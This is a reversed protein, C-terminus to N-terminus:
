RPKSLDVIPSSTDAPGTYRLFEGRLMPAFVSGLWNPGDVSVVADQDRGTQVNRVDLVSPGNYSPDIAHDHLKFVPVKARGARGTAAIWVQRVVLQTAATPHAWAEFVATGVGGDETDIMADNVTNVGGYADPLFTFIRETYPRMFGYFSTNIVANCGRLRWSDRGSNRVNTNTAWLIQRFGYYAADMGGISCDNLTVTYNAGMRWSGVAVNEYSEARVHDAEFDLVSGLVLCAGRGMLRLDRVRNPSGGGQGTKMWLASGASGNKDHADVTWSTKLDDLPLYGVTADAENRDFYRFLDNVTSRTGVARRQPDGPKGVVYRESASVHLGALTLPTPEFTNGAAAGGDAGVLLPDDENRRLRHGPGFGRKDYGLAGGAKTTEVQKGNLFAVARGDKLNVQFALDYPPTAGRLSVRWGHAGWDYEDTFREDAALFIVEDATEGVTLFWPAVRYTATVVGMGVIPQMPKWRKGPVPVLGVDVTLRDTQEWYDYGEGGRVLQRRGLVLDHFQLQLFKGGATSVGRRVGRAPAASAELVGFLDPRDTATASVPDVGFVFIPHKHATSMQVKSALGGGEIDVGDAIHIPRTIMFGQAAAPVYIKASGQLGGAKVAAAAAGAAAEFADTSDFAWEPVAGFRTVDFRVARASPAPPAPQGQALLRVGLGAAGAGIAAGILALAAPRYRRTTM